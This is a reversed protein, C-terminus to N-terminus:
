LQRITLNAAVNANKAAVTLPDSSNSVVSLTDNMEVSIIISGSTMHYSKGTLTGVADSTALETGLITVGNQALAFEAGPEEFSAGWTVLYEGPVNFVIAGVTADYSFASGTRKSETFRIADGARVLTQSGSMYYSGFNRPASQGAPGQPGIAGRAGPLGPEGQPGQPGPKGAEGAPGTAGRPGSPGQVGTAGTPGADGKPGQLGQQGMPGVAGDKGDKGPAGDNGAIGQPGQPG